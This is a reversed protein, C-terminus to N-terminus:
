LRGITGLTQASSTVREQEESPIGQCATTGLGIAVIITFRPRIKMQDSTRADVLETALTEGQSYAGEDLNLPISTATRRFRDGLHPTNINFRTFASPFRFHFRLAPAPATDTATASASASAAVSIENRVATSSPPLDLAPHAM